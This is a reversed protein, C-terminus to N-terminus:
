HSNIHSPQVDRLHPSYCENHDPPSKVETMHSSPNMNIIAMCVETVTVREITGEEITSGNLRSILTIVVKICTYLASPTIERNDGHDRTIM